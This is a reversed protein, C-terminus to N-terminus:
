IQLEDGLLISFLNPWTTRYTDLVFSFNKQLWINNTTSNPHSFVAYIM